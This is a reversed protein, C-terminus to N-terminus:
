RDVSGRPPVRRAEDAVGGGDMLWRWEDLGHGGVWRWIRWLLGGCGRGGEGKLRGGEGGGEVFFGVDVGDVCGDGRM